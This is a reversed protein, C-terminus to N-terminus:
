AGAREYAVRGDVVTLDVDVAALDDPPVSRLDTSLVTVDGLFGPALTGKSGEEFAAHAADVTYARLAADLPVAEEPWIARGQVDRRTVM